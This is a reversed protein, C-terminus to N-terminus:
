PIVENLYTSADREVYMDANDFWRLLYPLQPSRSYYVAPLLLIAGILQLPLCIFLFTITHKLLRLLFKIM